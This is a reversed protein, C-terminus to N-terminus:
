DRAGSFIGHNRKGRGIGLVSRDGLCWIWSWSGIEGVRAGCSCSGSSFFDCFSWGLGEDLLCNFFHDHSEHWSVELYCLLSNGGRVRKCRM